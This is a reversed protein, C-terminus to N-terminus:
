VQLGFQLAGNQEVRSRCGLVSIGGGGSVCRLLRGLLVKQKVDKGLPAKQDTDVLRYNQEEQIGVPHVRLVRSLILLWSFIDLILTRNLTRCKTTVGRYVFVKGVPTTSHMPYM